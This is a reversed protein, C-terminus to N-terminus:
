RGPFSFTTASARERGGSGGPITDDNDATEAEPTSKQSIAASWSFHGSVLVAKDEVTKCNCRTGTRSLFSHHSMEVPDRRGSTGTVQRSLIKWLRCPIACGPIRAVRLNNALRYTHLPM